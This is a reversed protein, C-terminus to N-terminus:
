FQQRSKNWKRAAAATATATTTANGKPFCYFLTAFLWCDIAATVVGAVDDDDDVVQHHSIKEISEHPLQTLKDPM